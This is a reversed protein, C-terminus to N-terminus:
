SEDSGSGVNFLSGIARFCFAVAWVALIASSILAGEEASIAPFVSLESPAALVATCLSADVPQSAPVTVAGAGDIEVCWM